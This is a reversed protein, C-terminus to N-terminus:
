WAVSSGAQNFVSVAPNRDARVIVVPRSRGIRMQQSRAFTWLNAFSRHGGDGGVGGM